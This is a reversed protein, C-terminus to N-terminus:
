ALGSKAVLDVLELPGQGLLGQFYIKEFTGQLFDLSSALRL